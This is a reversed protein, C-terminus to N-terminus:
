LRRVGCISVFPSPFCVGGREEVSVRCAKVFLPFPSLSLPIFPREQRRRRQQPSFSYDAEKQERKERGERPKSGRDETRPLGGGSTMRGGGFFQHWPRWVAEHFPGNACVCVCVCVGRPRLHAWHSFFVNYCCGQFSTASIITATAMLVAATAEAELPPPPPAPLLLPVAPTLSAGMPPPLVFLLLLSLLM